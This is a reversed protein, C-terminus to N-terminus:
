KGVRRTIVNKFRNGCFFFVLFLKQPDVFHSDLNRNLGFWEQFLPTPTQGAM